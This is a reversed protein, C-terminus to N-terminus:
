CFAAFAQAQKHPSLFRYITMLFGRARTGTIVWRCIRKSGTRPAIGSNPCNFRLSGGFRDRLRHLIWPEKQCIVVSLGNLADKRRQACGEGEFVGAAWAIDLATPSLTAALYANVKGMNSYRKIKRM